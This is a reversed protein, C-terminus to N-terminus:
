AEYGHTSRPGTTTGHAAAHNGEDNAEHAQPAALVGRLHLELYLSETLPHVASKSSPQWAKESRM